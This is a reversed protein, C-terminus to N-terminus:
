SSRASAEHLQAVGQQLLSDLRHSGHQLYDRQIRVELQQRSLSTARALALLGPLAPPLLLVADLRKARGGSERRLQVHLSQERLVADHWEGLVGQLQQLAQEAAACAPLVRCFPLLLYRVTKVQLRLPHLQAMGGAETMLAHLESCRQELRQAAVQGFPSHSETTASALAGLPRLLRRLLPISRQRVAGRRGLINRLTRRWRRAGVREQPSLQPWVGQLWALMVQGDRGRNSMKMLQALARLVKRRPKGPPAYHKVQVRLRRLAVRFDHLAEDDDRQLAALAAALETEYLQGLAHHSELAALAAM